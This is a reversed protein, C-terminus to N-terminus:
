LFGKCTLNVGVSPWQVVCVHVRLNVQTKTWVCVCVCVCRSRPPHNLHVAGRVPANVSITSFSWLRARQCSEHFCKCVLHILFCLECWKLEYHIVNLHLRTEELPKTTRTRPRKQATIDACPSNFLTKEHEGDAEFVRAFFFTRWVRLRSEASIPLQPPDPSWWLDRQEVPPWVDGSLGLGVGRTEVELKDADESADNERLIWWSQLLPLRLADLSADSLRAPDLLMKEGLFHSWLFNGCESIEEWLLLLSTLSCFHSPNFSSSSNNVRELHACWYSITSPVEWIILSTKPRWINLFAFRSKMCAQLFPSTLSFRIKFHLFPEDLWTNTNIISVNHEAVCSYLVM